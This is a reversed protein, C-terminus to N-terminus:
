KYGVIGGASVMKLSASFGPALFILTAGCFSKFLSCEKADERTESLAIVLSLPILIVARFLVAVLIDSRGRSFKGVVFIHGVVLFSALLSFTWRYDL